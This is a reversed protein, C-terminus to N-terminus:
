LTQAQRETLLAVATPLVLDIEAFISHIKTDVGADGPTVPVFRTLLTHQQQDTMIALM